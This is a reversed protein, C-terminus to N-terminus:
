DMLPLGSSDTNHSKNRCRPDLHRIAIRQHLESVETGSRCVMSGAHTNPHSRSCRVRTVRLVRVHGASTSLFQPYMRWRQKSQPHPRPIRKVSNWHECGLASEMCASRYNAPLALATTPRSRHIANLYAMIVSGKSHTFEEISSTRM